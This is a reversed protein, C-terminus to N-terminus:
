NQVILVNANVGFSNVVIFENSEFNTPKTQDIANVELNENLVSCAIRIIDGTTKM